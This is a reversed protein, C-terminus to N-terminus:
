ESGVPLAHISKVVEKSTAVTGFFQNITQLTMDHAEKSFAATCDSLFIVDYDLMFGDRATSEVCINTSVGAMLLTQIKLARLVSDLRTNIFASYRHKIVIVDKNEPELQYFEAGWTDKRCLNKQNKGKLRKIWTESDTSDEHITQIYIIPVNIEKMSTIMSKLNPMMEDVMSVDLDQKALSGEKHCYDNQVDVILLASHKPDWELQNM